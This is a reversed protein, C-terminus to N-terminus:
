YSFPYRKRQSFAESNKAVYGSVGFQSKIRTQNWNEPLVFYLKLQMGYWIEGVGKKIGTPIYIYEM